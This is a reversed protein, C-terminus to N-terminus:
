TLYPRYDLINLGLHYRPFVLEPLIIGYYFDHLKPYCQKTWFTEDFFIREVHIDKLTWVVFDCWPLNLIAMQGQVQYYYNHNKKLHIRKDGENLECFFNRKKCADIISVNRQSYPCKIELIGAPSGDKACVIGDPSAALFGQYSIYLGCERVNLDQHQLHQAYQQRAIAENCKGWQIASTSLKSQMPYIKRQAHGEFRRCKIIDGFGSSTLRGYREEHWRKCKHQKQTAKEIHTIDMKSHTLMGVLMQGYQFIDRLSVPQVQQNFQHRIREQSSRPLLPLQQFCATSTSEVLPLVHLLAVEGKCELSQRFSQIENASTHRLAVPRPDYASVVSKRKQKGYELKVFKIDGVDAADLVRKRPQNWTQLRSTCSVHEQVQHVRTFDELAYCMAAIHKCSGTPGRGAACGCCAYEVDATRNNLVIRISYTTNKKMEPLCNAQYYTVNLISYAEINQIHGEKFLPFAKSNINKFDNASKGDSTIRTIFYNTINGINFHPPTNINLVPLFYNSSPWDTSQM